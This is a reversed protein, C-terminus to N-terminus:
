APGLKKGCRACFKHEPNEVQNGCFPCFGSADYQRTATGNTDDQTRSPAFGMAKAIPDFEESGSTIDFSSIRNKQTANYISTIVGVLAMVVFFVGFGAFFLPAGNSYAMYTWFIGFVVAGLGMVAGILSSGRGPKISHM